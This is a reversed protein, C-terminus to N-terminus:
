QSWPTLVQSKHTLCWVALCVKWRQGGIALAVGEYSDRGTKGAAKLLLLSTLCNSGAVVLMVLIGLLVGTKSFAYPVPLLSSCAHCVHKFLGLAYSCCNCILSPMPIVTIILVAPNHSYPMRYQCATHSCDGALSAQVSRGLIALTLTVTASFLARYYGESSKMDSSSSLRLMRTHLESPTYKNQAVSLVSCM